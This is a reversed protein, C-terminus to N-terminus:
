LDFSMVADLRLTSGQAIYAAAVRARNFLNLAAIAAPPRNPFYLSQVTGDGQKPRCLGASFYPIIRLRLHSQVADLNAEM